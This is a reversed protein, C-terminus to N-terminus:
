EVVVLVTGAEVRAGDRVKVDTVVGARMSRLENEMKMAEIVVLAQRTEVIDGPKVLVKVIRGPMPAAVRQPAAGASSIERAAGPGPRRRRPISVALAKDDVYVVFTGDSQDGVAGDFSHLSRMSDTRRGAGPGVLLSWRDGIPTPVVDFAHGDVTVFWTAGTRRADVSWTRGNVEIEV